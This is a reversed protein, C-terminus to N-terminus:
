NDDDKAKDNLRKLKHKEIARIILGAIVIIVESYAKLFNM